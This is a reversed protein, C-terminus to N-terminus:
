HMIRFLVIFRQLLAFSYKEVATQYEEFWFWCIGVISEGILTRLHAILTVRTSRVKTDHCALLAAAVASVQM